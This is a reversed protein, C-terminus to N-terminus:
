PVADIGQRLLVRRKSILIFTQLRPMGPSFSLFPLVTSATGLLRGAALVSERGWAIRIFRKRYLFQEKQYRSRRRMKGIYACLNLSM